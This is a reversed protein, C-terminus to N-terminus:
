ALSAASRIALTIGAVASSITTVPELFDSGRMGKPWITSAPQQPRRRARHECPRWAARTRESPLRTTPSSEPDIWLTPAMTCDAGAQL